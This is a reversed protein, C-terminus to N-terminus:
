HFYLDLISDFVIEIDKQYALKLEELDNVAFGPKVVRNLRIISYLEQWLVPNKKSISDKLCQVTRINAQLAKRNRSSLMREDKSFKSRDVLQKTKAVVDFISALTQIKEEEERGFEEACSFLLWADNEEVSRLLQRTRM